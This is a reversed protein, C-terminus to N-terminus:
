EEPNSLSKKAAQNKECQSIYEKWTKNLFRSNSVLNFGVYMDFIGISLILDIYFKRKVSFDFIGFVTDFKHLEDIREVVEMCVPILM